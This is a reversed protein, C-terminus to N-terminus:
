ATQLRPVLMSKECKHRQLRRPVVQKILSVAQADGVIVMLFNFHRM